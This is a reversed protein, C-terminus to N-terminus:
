FEGVKMIGKRVNDESDTSDSEDWSDGTRNRRRKGKGSIRKPSQNQKYLCDSCYPVEKKM